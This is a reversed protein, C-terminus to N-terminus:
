LLSVLLGKSFPRALPAPYLAEFLCLEVCRYSFHYSVIRREQTNHPSFHLSREQLGTVALSPFAFFSAGLHRKLSPAHTGIAATCYLDLAASPIVTSPSHIPECPHHAVKKLLPSERIAAKGELPLHGAPASLACAAHFVSSSLPSASAKEATDAAGSAAGVM